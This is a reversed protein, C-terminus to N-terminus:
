IVFNNLNEEEESDGRYFDYFIEVLIYGNEKATIFAICNNPTKKPM